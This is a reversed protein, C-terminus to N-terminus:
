RFSRFILYGMAIIVAWALAALAAIAIIRIGLPWKPVDPEPATSLAKALWLDAGAGDRRHAPAVRSETPGGEYSAYTQSGSAEGRQKRPIMALM